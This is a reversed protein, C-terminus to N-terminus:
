PFEIEKSSNYFPYIVDIKHESFFEDINCSILMSLDLKKVATLNFAEQSIRITEMEEQFTISSLNTCGMFCGNPIEDCGVPWSFETMKDCNLFAYSDVEKVNEIGSIREFSFCNQFCGVPIIECKKPWNFSTLNKCDAFAKDEIATINEIGSISKLKKCSYFCGAPIMKAKAPWVFEEIKSSDFANKCICDVNEMGEFKKIASSEFCSEPICRCNKSWELTGIYACKFAEDRVETVSPPLIFRDVPKTATAIPQGKPIFVFIGKGTGICEVKIEKKKGAIYSDPVKIVDIHEGAALSDESYIATVCGLHMEFCITVERKSDGLVAYAKDKYTAL